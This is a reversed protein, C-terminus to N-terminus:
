KTNRVKPKCQKKHIEKWHIKQHDRSCYVVQGCRSCRKDALAGCLACQHNAHVTKRMDRQVSILKDIAMKTYSHNFGYIIQLMQVSRQYISEAKRRNIHTLCDGLSECAFALILGPSDAGFIEDRCAIIMEHARAGAQYDKIQESLEGKLKWCLESLYHMPHPARLKMIRASVDKPLGNDLIFEIDKIENQLAREQKLLRSATDKTPENGCKTCALVEPTDEQDVQRVFHVGPCKRSVCKFRRTDDYDKGCRECECNFYKSERLIKRRSYTPLLQEDEGIYSITLEQGKQISSIARVIRKSGDESSFWYCNPKCSHSFRCATEFLGLGFNVGKGCGGHAPAPNMTVANFNIIMNVLVFEEVDLTGAFPAMRARVDNALKCELEVYFDRIKAKVEEPLSKYHWYDNWLSPSVNRPFDIPLAPTCYKSHPPFIALAAEALVEKGEVGPVLDTTAVVIRGKGESSKIEIM